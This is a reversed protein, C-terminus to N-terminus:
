GGADGDAVDGYRSETSPQQLQITELGAKFMMTIGAAENQGSAGDHNNGSSALTAGGNSQGCDM